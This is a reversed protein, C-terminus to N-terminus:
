WRLRHGCRNSPPIRWTKEMWWFQGRRLNMSGPWCASSPLREPVPPGWWRSPKARNRGSPSTKSFGVTRLRQNTDSTSQASNWRARSSAWRSRDPATWSRPNLISCNSSASPAPPPRSFRTTCTAWPRSPASSCASIFSSRRWNAWRSAACYFLTAAM